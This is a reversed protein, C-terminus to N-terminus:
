TSEIRFYAPAWSTWRSLDTIRVDGPPSVTTATYIGLFKEMDMASLVNTATTVNDAGSGVVGAPPAITQAGRIVYNMRITSAASFYLMMVYNGQTLTTAAAEMGQINFIRVGSVSATLTNSYSNSVSGLRSIQSSNVWTYIAAHITFLNTNTTSRSLEIQLNNWTIDGPLYFPTFLPKASVDTLTSINSIFARWSLNAFDYLSNRSVTATVKSSNNMGFSIGNSDAFLVTGTTAATQTGAAIINVGDGGGGGAPVSVIVEGASYGVSAIGMGRFTLSRADQTGSSVSSTTNSSMYFGLTQNTQAPVSPVTYSGVMSGNSTYFSMGNLNGFTATQFSFSGNSGSIGPNSQATLYDTKVAATIVSGNLGFTVGSGDAFTIKSLNNSTTGASVNINSLLGAVSPVTYSGVMSGNSTYFTLGNISGFTATQFAFSGNSASLAQGSQATLYNTQVTATLTQGNIGFSVGNSDALSLQGLTAVVTGASISGTNGGGTGGGSALVAVQSM